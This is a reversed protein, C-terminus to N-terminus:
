LAKRRLTLIQHELQRSVPKAIELERQPHPVEWVKLYNDGVQELKNDGSL